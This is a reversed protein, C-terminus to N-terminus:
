SSGQALSSQSCIDASQPDKLSSLTAVVSSLRALRIFGISSKMEVFIEPIPTAMFYRVLKMIVDNATELIQILPEATPGMGSLVVGFAIRDSTAVSILGHYNKQRM